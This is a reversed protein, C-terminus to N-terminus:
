VAQDAGPGQVRDPRQRRWLYVGLATLGGMIIAARIVRLLCVVWAIGLGLAAWQVWWDGPSTLWNIVTLMLLILPAVFLFKLDHLTRLM